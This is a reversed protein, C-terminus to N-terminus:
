SQFSVSHIDHAEKERGEYSVVISIYTTLNVIGNCKSCVLDLMHLHHGGVDTTPSSSDLIPNDCKPCLLIEGSEYEQIMSRSDDDPVESKPTAGTEDPGYPLQVSM